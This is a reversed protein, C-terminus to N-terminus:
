PPGDIVGLVGASSRSGAAGLGRSRRARTVRFEPPPGPAAAPHPRAPPVRRLRDSRPGHHLPSRAAQARGRQSWLKSGLALRRNLAIAQLGNNVMTHIRVLRVRHTVLARLDRTAPD